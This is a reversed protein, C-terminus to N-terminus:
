SPSPFLRQFVILLNWDGDVAVEGRLMATVANAKGSLIRDLLPKELRVTADAAQNRKSIKVTGDDIAIFWRERRGEDDVDIRVTGSRRALAPQYGNQRLGDFFAATPDSVDSLTSSAL